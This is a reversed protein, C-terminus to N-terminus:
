GDSVAELGDRRKDWTAEIERMPMGCQREFDRMGRAGEREQLRALGARANEELSPEAAPAGAAGPASPVRRLHPPVDDRRDVPLFREEREGTRANLYEYMPM